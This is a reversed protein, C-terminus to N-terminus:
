APEREISGKAAATCHTGVAVLRHREDHLLQGGRHQQRPVLRGVALLERRQLVGRLEAHSGLHTAAPM